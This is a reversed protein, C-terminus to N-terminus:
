GGIFALAFLVLVVFPGITCGIVAGWVLPKFGKLGGIASGLVACELPLAIWVPIMAEFSRQYNPPVFQHTVFLLVWLLLAILFASKDLRSEFM